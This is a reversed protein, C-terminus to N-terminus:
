QTKTRKPGGTKYPSYHGKAKQSGKEEPFVELEDRQDYGCSGCVICGAGMYDVLKADPSDCKPCHPGDM